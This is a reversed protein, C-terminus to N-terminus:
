RARRVARHASPAADDGGGASQAQEAARQQDASDDAAVIEVDHEARARLQTGIREIRGSSASTSIPANVFLACNGNWNQSGCAIAAGM